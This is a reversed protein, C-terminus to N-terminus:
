ADEDVEECVECLPLTFSVKTGKQWESEININGGHALIIQRAISLGLGTGGMARSRAKDVRYFREFIRSLDRNPIGMGQDIVDICAWNENQKIARVLIRTGENSYKFANSLLNDLVQIIEDKDAWILLPQEPLEIELRINQQKSQVYFREQLDKLILDLRIARLDLSHQGADFRSLQLLDNVLRTM